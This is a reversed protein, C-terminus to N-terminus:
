HDAADQSCSFLLSYWENRDLHVADAACAETLHAANTTGVIPILHSPLRLLWALAISAPATGKELALQHLIRNTRQLSGRAAEAVVPFIGRLPSYAQLQIQQIRCYDLTGTKAARSNLMFTSSFNELIFDPFRLGLRIQNIVLSQRVTSRLLDIQTPTHNSLGFYRVKGQDFLQDFAIAVEDPEVLADPYHLLLIDLRDM